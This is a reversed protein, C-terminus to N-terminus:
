ATAVMESAAEIDVTVLRSVGPEHMTVGLLQQGMEMAIKNHTIFIFQTKQSMEEVMRCFRAANNDDLPADVEDLICFPSPNLEFFAFVLAVATLAKEGGSLQHISSNRKGPPRAVVLVGADLLDDGIMELSAKGGGFLRPYLDSLRENVQDFTERFRQKTENDIKQIARELTELASTLDAAQADLYQKREEQEHCEDIAALNIPGMRQIRTELGELRSQWEAENAGEPLEAILEEVTLEMEALQEQLTQRRVVEEQLSMRMRDLDGRVAELQTTCARHAESLEKLRHDGAEVARRATELESEVDMRSSLLSQLESKMAVVPTEGEALQGELETKRSLLQQRQALIREQGARLAELSARTTEIRTRTESIVRQIQRQAQRATEVAGNLGDRQESLAGHRMEHERVDLVNQDHGSRLAELEGSLMGAREDYGAIEGSVAQLRRGSQEVTTELRALRTASSSHRQTLERSQQQLTRLQTELSQLDVRDKQCAEDLKALNSEGDEIQGALARLRQERALVGTEEEGREVRLWTRGLWHGGRTVISDGSALEGRRLLAEDLTECCYIRGLLSELSWPTEFKHILRPLDISTVSPAVRTDGEILTLHGRELEDVQMAPVGLETVSLGQLDDGLIREAALEWGSEVKIVEALRKNGALGHRALWNGVVSGQKGLAANQLASLSANEQRLQSLSERAADRGAEREKSERRLAELADQATAMGQQLTALQGVEADVEAKIGAAAITEREVRVALEEREKNLRAQRERTQDLQTELHQIRTRDIETKQRLSSLEQNLRDWSGRWENLVAEAQQLAGEAERERSLVAELEPEAQALIDDLASIREGDQDLGQVMDSIQGEVRELDQRYQAQREQHHKISQEIRAVEAGATYFRAQVKNLAENTETLRERQQETDAENARLEAMRQELRTEQETIKGQREHVVHDLYRWRLALLEAKCRREDQKILKYREATRAQRQLSQLRKELEGVVDSIRSLNEKTDRIRLETERRRDKYRSIGAAEELFVRLEEPKAEVLRSITGQEIIAYSRPGLGTGLFIDTIDRRRCRSGNLSYTSQGDRSLVRRVSIESYSAYQGGLGGDRNDFILEVSAQGVPKRVSSGNFIVDDMSEGRLQRASSEGMVWRVADIVNSKGCGNPGVVGVLQSPFDITTPDVFSKFGSLKIKKLRM